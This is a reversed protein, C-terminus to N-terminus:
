RSTLKKVLDPRDSMVMDVGLDVMRLIDAEENVTWASVRIGAARAAAMVDADILRHNMGLDTAGLDRARRVAEAPRARDREVDGRAVLLMTRAKPELARLRRITEVQFAQVTTRALLGRARLLALVKEEISDYRQRNADVKIEPLLEVAAAALELLQAFTPIREDTVAGDRTKLRVGALDALKLDRVPGTGTTTRDLTPDHLVVLEGDSTMHLDFELADVGLALAQRFALLSNEPWLAAGGRHAAVLTAPGGAMPAAAVALSLLLSVFAVVRVGPSM